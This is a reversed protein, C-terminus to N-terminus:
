GVKLKGEKLLNLLKINQSSTGTYNLIGNAKAIKKRNTLSSDINISKLADVLSKYQSECKKYYETKQNILKNVIAQVEIYNYGDNELKKKREEDNGYKGDIVLKAVEENSLKKENTNNKIIDSYLYNTDVNGTIGNIKGNSLNQWMDFEGQYKDIANTYHAIWLTYKNYLELKNLYTDYWYKNAYVGANFGLKKIEECFTTAINTLRSKGLNSLSSDEMDIFIPMEFTKGKLQKEIWKISNEINQSSVCYNYIYIGIPIKLRKCENYNREFQLDITHNDHNGIWGLRLIAFNIQSKVKNWDIIGQHQSVDIGFKSM